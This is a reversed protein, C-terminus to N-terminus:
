GPGEPAPVTQPEAEVESLARALAHEWRRTFGAHDMLPSRKVADRMSRRGTVLSDVDAALDAATTVFAEPSTCVLDLRGVQALISGGVRSVHREGLLTVVPVGMWLAQLTTTTGHYPFPDLAIDVREYLALHDERGPVQDLVTVRGADIDACAAFREAARAKAAATPLGATKLLLRSRPVAHLVAAWLRVTAETVKAYKNFSGFTVHGNVLRPPAAVPRTTPPDFALFGPDLRLLAESHLHETMGVPDCFADTARLDIQRLGTTDPYGLWTVQLPSPRKAFVDLRNGSTHGALDVLVDVEDDAIMRAAEDAAVGVLSRWDDVLTRLRTTVQDVQRATQYALVRVRPRDHHRLVPELFQAVPHARLDPSVYGITLARRRGVRRPRAPLDPHHTRGWARHAEAISAPDRSSSQMALLMRSGTAPDNFRGVAQGYADLAGEVDGTARLANGLARHVRVDDDAGAAIAQRYHGIAAGPDGRAMLRDAVQVHTRASTTDDAATCRHHMVLMSAAHGVYDNRVKNLNLAYRVGGRVVDPRSLHYTNVADFQMRRLFGLTAETASRYRPAREPAYAMALAQAAATGEGYCFSQMAPLEDPLKYYGGVYDPFPANDATWQYSDVMWDAVRLGFEAADADGTLAFWRECAMVAWPSFQVLRIRVESDYLSEPRRGDPIRQAALRDFWETYRTLWGPVPALWGDEGLHDALDCLALAVQGPVLDNTVHEYPHGAPVLYPRARGDDQTQSLVYRGMQRLLDDETRSDTARSFAIWSRIAMLVTGLKQNPLADGVQTMPYRFLVSGAPPNPMVTDRGAIRVPLPADRPRVLHRLLWDMQRRATEVYTPDQLLRHAEALDRIGLVHRVENYDSSTRNETPWFKYRVRGDPGTNDRWWDACARLRTLTEPEPGAVAVPEPTGRTLRVAGGGGPRDEMWHHTRILDLRTSPHEWPAPDLWGTERTATWLLRDITELSRAVMESGPRVTLKQARGPPQRFIFGDIGPEWIEFLAEVSRPEVPAQESIYHIELRIRPLLESMSGLGLVEVDAAWSDRIRRALLDLAREIDDGGDAHVIVLSRGQTRASAILRASSPRWAQPSATGGALRARLGALLTTATSDRVRTPLRRVTYLYHDGTVRRLQFWELHDHRTLRSLLSQDRDLAVALGRHASLLRVGAARLWQALAAEDSGLLLPVVADEVSPETLEEAPVEPPSPGLSVATAQSTHRAWARRSAATLPSSTLTAALHTARAWRQAADEGSDDGHREPM